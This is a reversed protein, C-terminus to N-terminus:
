QLRFCHTQYAGPTTPYQSQAAFANNASMGAVYADGGADIAIVTGGTGPGPNGLYTSYVLANGAANLKFVVISAKPNPATTDFSGPVTPFDTSVSIAAVYANGSSDVALGEEIIGVGALPLEGGSGGVFTSYLLTPDITLAQSHDYAGVQFGIKGDGLNVYNGYVPVGNAQYLKPAEEYMTVNAQPQYLVLSGVTTVSAQWGPFTM